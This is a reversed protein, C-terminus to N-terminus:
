NAQVKPLILARYPIIQMHKWHGQRGDWIGGVGSVVFQTCPHLLGQCLYSLYLSPNSYGHGMVSLPIYTTM